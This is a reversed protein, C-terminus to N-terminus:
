WINRLDRLRIFEKLGCGIFPNIIREQKLNTFYVKNGKEWLITDMEMSKEPFHKKIFEYNNELNNHWSYFLVEDDYKEFKKVSNYLDENSGRRTHGVWWSFLVDGSFITTVINDESMEFMMHGSAHGPTFIAKICINEYEFVIEEDKFKYSVEFPIVESAVEWAYIEDCALWEVWDYHDYHEHTILIRRLTLNHEDLVDQALKSDCPDIVLAQKDGYELVYFINELPNNVVIPHIKMFRTYLFTEKKWFLSKLNCKTGPSPSSGESGFSLSKSDRTDVM